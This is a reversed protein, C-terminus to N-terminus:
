EMSLIQYLRRKFNSRLSRMIFQKIGLATLRNLHLDHMRYMQRNYIQSTNKAIIQLIEALININVNMYILRFSKKLRRQHRCMIRRLILPIKNRERQSTTCDIESVQVM